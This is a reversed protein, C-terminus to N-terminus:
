QRSPIPPQSLVNTDHCSTQFTMLNEIAVCNRGGQKASYLAKDTMAILIEPDIEAQPIISAVGISLTIYNSVESRDHVIKLAQVRKRITEALRIAVKANTNPLIVAFEEGGYRAVLDVSRKVCQQIAAAVQQLCFDGALHGYTDNYRKFFDVDCLLLSLPLKERFLQLWELYFYENFRRRNALGTLSDLTALRELEQNAKVLAAEIKKRHILAGLQTTVAKVLEIVRPEPQSQYKKFFVLIAIIQDDIIIPISLATKLGVELAFERRIFGPFLPLSLDEIWELEQSLWVKGAIGMSPTLRLNISNYIFKELQKESVYWGQSYELITADLSPIWAEGLDWGITLCVQRLTVELASHFDGAQNILQTTTLLFRIQEEARQRELIEQQLRINQACLQKQLQHLTLQNEIRALVEDIQFPKTIYDVGGLQFAQIKNLTECFASIFIIPIDSTAPVSKLKQCLEYGNMEPMNIDLLILDPKIKQISKLAIRGNLAKRVQYGQSKLMNTLFRLNDPADDVILIDAKVVPDTPSNM